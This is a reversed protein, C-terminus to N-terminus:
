CAAAAIAPIGADLEDRFVTGQHRRQQDASERCVSGVSLGDEDEECVGADFGSDFRRWVVSSHLSNHWTRLFALLRLM